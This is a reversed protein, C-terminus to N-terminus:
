VEVYSGESPKGICVYVKEASLNMIISFITEMRRHPPLKENIFHNISNPYHHQDSFWEKFSDVGAREHRSAHGEILQRARKMRIMSDTEIYENKDVVHSKIFSSCIHNTHVVYGNESEEIDIGAPSVEVNMVMEKQKEASGILFNAAAAMLGGDIRLIAESYTYSNLVSRLGLHIPIRDSKKDTLLANLCVGLGASNCGIKGIIGGETIMKISPKETQEIDLYLLSEAQSSKWDWNQGIIVESSMPSMVGIATCGDAFQTYKGSLAIESRTNLALIDEFDVGAGVAVGEMEEILDEDYQLIAEVHKLALEKAEDWRIQSYEYFLSEYTELSRLVEKKGEAGHKRGIERYSGQLYLKKIM